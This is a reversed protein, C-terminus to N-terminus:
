IAVHRIVQITPKIKIKWSKLMLSTNNPMWFKFMPSLCWWVHQLFFTRAWLFAPTPATLPLPLLLHPSFQTLLLHQSDWRVPPPARPITPHDWPSCVLPGRQHMPNFHGRCVHWLVAIQFKLSALEASLESLEPDTDSFNRLYFWAESFLMLDLASGNIVWTANGM